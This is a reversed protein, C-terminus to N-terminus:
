AVGTVRLSCATAGIELTTEDGEIIKAGTEELDTLWEDNKIPPGKKFDRLIIFFITGSSNTKWKM